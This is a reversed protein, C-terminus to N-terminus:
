PVGFAALTQSGDAEWGVILVRGGSIVMHQVVGVNVPVRALPRCTAAGCGDAPLAILTDGDTAYVVDGGVMLRIFSGDLPVSWEPTCEAQGCGSVPYADLARQVPTGGGQNRYGVVYIRDDTAAIDALGAADGNDTGASYPAQWVLTGDDADLVELRGHEYVGNPPVEVRFSRRLYVHGHAAVVPDNVTIGDGTTTWMPGCTPAGCGAADYALVTGALNVYIRGDAITPAVNSLGDIGATWLIELTAQDRVVLRHDGFFPSCGTADMHAVISGSTVTASTVLHTPRVATTDGSSPDLRRLDACPTTVSARRAPHSVLLEEGSFVVPPMVESPAGTNPLAREWVLSGTTLEYARVASTGSVWHSVYARGADTVPESLRGPASTSWQLALRDVNAATLQHELPNNRTQGANAGTQQWWCGSLTVALLVVTGARAVRAARRGRHTTGM